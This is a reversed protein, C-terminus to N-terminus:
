PGWIREQMRESYMKRSKDLIDYVRFYKINEIIENREEIERKGM